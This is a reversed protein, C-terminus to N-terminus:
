SLMTDGAIIVPFNMTPRAAREVDLYENWAMRRTADSVM